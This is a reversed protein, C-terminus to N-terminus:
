WRQREAQEAMERWQQAIDRYAQAHLPDLCREAVRDAEEAKRRYHEAKRDV